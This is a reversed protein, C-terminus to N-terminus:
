RFHNHSKLMITKKVIKNKQWDSQRRQPAGDDGCWGFLEVNGVPLLWVLYLYEWSGLQRVPTPDVVSAALQGELELWVLNDLDLASVHQSVGFHDGLVAHEDGDAVDVFM